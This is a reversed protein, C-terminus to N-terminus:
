ILGLQRARAIAEARSNVDLKNFINHLHRKVTGTELVLREAIQPNSLGKGALRLV